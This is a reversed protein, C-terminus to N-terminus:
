QTPPKLNGVRAAIGCRSCQVHEKVGISRKHIVDRGEAGDVTSQEPADDSEKTCLTTHVISELRSLRESVFCTRIWDDKM